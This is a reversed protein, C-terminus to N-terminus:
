FRRGGAAPQRAAPAPAPRMAVFDSINYFKVLAGARNPKEKCDVMFQCNKGIFQELNVQEGIALERGGNLATIWKNLKSKPSLYLTASGKVTTEAPIEPDNIEVVFEAMTTVGRDFTAEKERIETIVGSLVTAIPLDPYAQDEHKVITLPM